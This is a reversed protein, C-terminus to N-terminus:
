PLPKGMSGAHVRYVSSNDAVILNASHDFALGVLNLGSVALEPVSGKRAFRFVGRRGRHSAVVYLNGEIDFAMGQPRGLGTFFREVEGTPSIRYISDFSSTTPGTVYLYDDLGYALHYAAVSPELTAFVFIEKGPSIKFISGSRDGVYLNSNKDFALGTAIGM